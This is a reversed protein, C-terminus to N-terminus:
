VQKRKVQSLGLLGVLMLALTAPAPVTGSVPPPGPIPPTPPAITYDIVIDELIATNYVLQGTTDIYNGGQTLTFTLENSFVNDAPSLFLDFHAYQPGTNPYAPIATYGQTSSINGILLGNFEVDFAAEIGSWLGYSFDLSIASIDQYDTIDFTETYSTTTAFDATYENMYVGFGANVDITTSFASGSFVVGAFVSCCMVASKLSRNKM